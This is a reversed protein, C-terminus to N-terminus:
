PLSGTINGAKDGVVVLGGAENALLGVAHNATDDYVAVIGGDENSGLAVKPNETKDYVLVGGGSEDNLLLVGPNGNKNVVTVTGGNEDIFLLGGPNGNEDVVTLKNCTLENFAASDMEGILDPNDQAILSPILTTATVMGILMLVGGLALYGLKQRYNM